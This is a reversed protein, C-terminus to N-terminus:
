LGCLPAACGAYYYCQSYLSMGPQPLFTRAAVPTYNFAGQGNEAGARELPILLFVLALTVILRRMTAEEIERGNSRVIAPNEVQVMRFTIRICAATSPRRSLARDIDGPECSVQRADPEGLARERNWVSRFGRVMRVLIGWLLGSIQESPSAFRTRWPNFVYHYRTKTSTKQCPYPFIWKWCIGWETVQIQESDGCAM